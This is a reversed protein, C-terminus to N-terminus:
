RKEGEEKGGEERGGKQRGEENFVCSNLVKQICVCLGPMKGKIIHVNHKESGKKKVRM